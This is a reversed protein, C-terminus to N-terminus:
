PRINSPIVQVSLPVINSAVSKCDRLQTKGHVQTVPWVHVSGGIVSGCVQKATHVRQEDGCNERIKQRRTEKDLIPLQQIKDTGAQLHRTPALFVDDLRRSHVASNDQCANNTLAEKAQAEWKVQSEPRLSGQVGRPRVNFSRACALVHDRLFGATMCGTSLIGHGPGVDSAGKQGEHGLTEVVPRRERRDGSTDRTVAINARSEVAGINDDEHRASLTDQGGGGSSEGSWQCMGEYSHVKVGKVVPLYTALGAPMGRCLGTPGPPVNSASIGTREAWKEQLARLQVCEKSSERAWAGSTSRSTRELDRPSRVERGGATFRDQGDEADHAVKQEDCQPDCGVARGTGQGGHSNLETASTGRRIVCPGWALLQTIWKKIDALVEGM